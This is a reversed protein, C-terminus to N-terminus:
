RNKPFDVEHRVLRLADIDRWTDVDFCLEVVGATPLNPLFDPLFNNALDTLGPNHGAVMVQGWRDNLGKILELISSDSAHYLGAKRRIADAPAGMMEAIPLATDLARRADSSLILDPLVGRSKLRKGMEPVDRKGRKNLPREHDSLGPDKWSSKAHRLLYLTKM